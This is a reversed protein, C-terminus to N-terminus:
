LIYQKLSIDEEIKKSLLATAEANCYRPRLTIFAHLGVSAELISRTPV